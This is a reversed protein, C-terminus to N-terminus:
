VPSIFDGVLEDILHVSPEWKDPFDHPLKFLCDTMIGRKVPQVATGEGKGRVQTPSCYEHIHYFIGVIDMFQKLISCFNCDLHGIKIDFLTHINNDRYIRQHGLYGRLM